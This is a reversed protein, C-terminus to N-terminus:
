LEICGYNKSQLRQNVSVINFEEPDYEYGLWEVMEDYEEHKPNKIIECLEMYGYPGGCDEPPCNRKGESCFPVPIDIPDTIIKELVITHMWGDGFDYEYKMKQKAFFILRNLRIRRYDTYFYDNDEYPESYIEDNYYFQHLHSNTWGMVTQIVKHLDPLKIEPDVLVRRWIQPKIGDLSIKLQYLYSPKKKSKQIKKREPM